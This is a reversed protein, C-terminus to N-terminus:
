EIKKNLVEEKSPSLTGGSTRKAKQRKPHKQGNTHASLLLKKRAYHLRSRVTGVSINHLRAIEPSNYGVAALAVTSRQQPSLQHLATLTSHLQSRIDLSDDLCAASQALYIQTKPDSALSISGDENLNFCCFRKRRQEASLLDYATNRVIGHLYNPGFVTPIRTRKSWIKFAVEQTLEDCAAPMYQMALTEIAKYLVDASQINYLM